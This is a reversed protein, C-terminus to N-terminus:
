ETAVVPKPAFKYCLGCSVCHYGDFHWRYYNVSSPGIPIHMMDRTAKRTHTAIVDGSCFRCTGKPLEPEAYRKREQEKIEKERDISAQKMRERFVALEDDTM